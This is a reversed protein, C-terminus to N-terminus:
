FDSLILMEDTIGGSAWAQLKKPWFANQNKDRAVHGIYLDINRCLRDVMVRIRKKSNDDCSSREIFSAFYCLDQKLYQVEKCDSCPM